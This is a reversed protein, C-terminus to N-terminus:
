PTPEKINPARLYFWGRSQETEIYWRRWETQLVETLESGVTEDDDNLQARDWFGTGHGVASLYLDSGFYEASYGCTNVARDCLETHADHFAQVFALAVARAGASIRPNTDENADAEHAVGVFALAATHIQKPTM